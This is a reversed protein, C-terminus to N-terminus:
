RQLRKATPTPRAGISAPRNAPIRFTPLILPAWGAKATLEQVHQRVYPFANLQGNAFAFDSMVDASGPEFDDPVGFTVRYEFRMAFISVHKGAFKASASLRYELSVELQKRAVAFSWGASSLGLKYNMSEPAAPLGHPGALSQWHSQALLVDVLTVVSSVQKIREYDIAVHSKSELKPSTSGKKRKMTM